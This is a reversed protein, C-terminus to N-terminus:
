FLLTVRSPAPYSNGSSDLKAKARQRKASSVLGLLMLRMTAPIPGAKWHLGILFGIVGSLLLTFRLRRWGFM